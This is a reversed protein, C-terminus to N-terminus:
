ADPVDAVVSGGAELAVVLGAELDNDSRLVDYRSVLSSEHLHPVERAVREVLHVRHVLYVADKSYFLKMRRDYHYAVGSAFHTEQVLRCAIGALLHCNEKM